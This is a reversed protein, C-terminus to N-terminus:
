EVVKLQIQTGDPMEDIQKGINGSFRIQEMQSIIRVNALSYEGGLIGPIALHYKQRPQLSGLKEKALETFATMYWDALFEQNVSLAELEQQNEAVVKCYVDEPCLRWFKGHVDRIMLNGFDNECVIEDPEIGIWSWTEVIAEIISM